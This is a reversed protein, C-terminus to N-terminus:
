LVAKGKGKGIYIGKSAPSQCVRNNMLKHQSDKDTVIGVKDLFEMEKQFGFNMVTYVLTKQRALEQCCPDVGCDKGWKFDMKINDM